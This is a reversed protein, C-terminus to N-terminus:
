PAEPVTTTGTQCWADAVLRLREGDRDDDLWSDVPGLAYHVGPPGPLRARHPNCMALVIAPAPPLQPRWQRLFASLTATVTQAPLAFELLVDDALAAIDLARTEPDVDCGITLTLAIVSTAIHKSM